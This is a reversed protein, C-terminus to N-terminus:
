KRKTVHQRIKPRVFYHKTMCDGMQLVACLQWGQSGYKQLLADEEMAENFSVCSTHEMPWHEQTNVDIKAQPQESNM